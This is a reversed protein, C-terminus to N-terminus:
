AQNKDALRQEALLPTLPLARGRVTTLPSTEPWRGAGSFGTLRRSLKVGEKRVDTYLSIKGQHHCQRIAEIVEEAVWTKRLTRTM